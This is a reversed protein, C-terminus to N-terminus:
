YYWQSCDADNDLQDTSGLKIWIRKLQDYNSRKMLDTLKEYRRRREVEIMGEMIVERSLLKEFYSWDLKIKAKKCYKGREIIIARMISRKGNM